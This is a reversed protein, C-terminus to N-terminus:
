KQVSGASYLIINNYLTQKILVPKSEGLLCSRNWGGHYIYDPCVGPM